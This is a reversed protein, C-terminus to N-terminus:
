SEGYCSVKPLLLGHVPLSRRISHPFPLQSQLFTLQGDGGEGSPPRLTCLSKVIRQQFDTKRNQRTSKEWPRHIIQMYEKCVLLCEVTRRRRNVLRFCTGM